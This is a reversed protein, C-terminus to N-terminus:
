EQLAPGETTMTFDEPGGDPARGEAARVARVNPGLLDYPLPAPGGAFLAALQERTLETVNEDVKAGALLVNGKHQWITHAAWPPASNVPPTYDAIWLPLSAFRQPLALSRLYYPGGYVGIGCRSLRLAEDLYDTVLGRAIAPADTPVPWSGDPRAKEAPEFDPWYFRLGLDAAFDAHFAAQARADERTRFYAYGSVLLGAARLRRLYEPAATDPHLGYAIRVIAFEFGLAVLQEADAIGAVSAGDIGRM